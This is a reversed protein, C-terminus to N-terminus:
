WDDPKGSDIDSKAENIVQPLNLDRALDELLDRAYTRAEPPCAPCKYLLYLPWTLTRALPSFKRKSSHPEVFDPVCTLVGTAIEDLRKAASNKLSMFHTYKETQIGLSTEETSCKIHDMADSSIDWVIENLFLRVMRVANGFKAMRFNSYHCATRLYAWPPTDEVSRITYASIYQPDNLLGCAERDLVLVERLIDHKISESLLSFNRIQARISATKDLMAGFKNTTDKPGLFLTASKNLILLEEHVNMERQICSTRINNAAHVFLHHAVNSKFQEPGRLQLLRLAGTMHMTWEVPPARGAFITSEFLGLLLVAALTRDLVAKEPDRLAANTRSLALSYKSRGNNLYQQDGTRLALAAFSAAHIASSLADDALQNKLYLDPLYNSFPSSMIYSTMFYSLAVDDAFDQVINFFVPHNPAGALALSNSDSKKTDEAM